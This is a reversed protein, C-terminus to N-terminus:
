LSHKCHVWDMVVRLGAVALKLKGMSKHCSGNFSVMCKGYAALMKERYGCLLRSGKVCAEKLLNLNYCLWGRELWQSPYGYGSFSDHYGPFCLVGFATKLSGIRYKGWLHKVGSAIFAILLHARSLLKLSKMSLWKSWQTEQFQVTSTVTKVWLAVAM